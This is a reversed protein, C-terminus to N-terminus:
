CFFIIADVCFSQWYRGRLIRTCKQVTYISLSQWLKKCTKKKKKGEPYSAIRCALMYCHDQKTVRCSPSTSIANSVAELLPICNQGYRERSDYAVFHPCHRNTNVSKTVRIPSRYLSALRSSPSEVPCACRHRKWAAKWWLYAFRCTACILWETNRLSMLPLPIQAYLNSIRSLYATADAVDTLKCILFFALLRGFCSRAM